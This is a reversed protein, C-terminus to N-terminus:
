RLKEGLAAVEKEFSAIVREYVKAQEALEADAVLECEQAVRLHLEELAGLLWLCGNAANKYRTRM